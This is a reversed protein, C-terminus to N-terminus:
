NPFTFFFFFVGLYPHHEHWNGPFHSTKSGTQSPHRIRLDTSFIHFHFEVYLVNREELSWRHIESHMKVVAVSSPFCTQLISIRSISHPPLLDTVCVTM